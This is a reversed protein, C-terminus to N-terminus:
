KCGAALNNAALVVRDTRLRVCCDTVFRLRKEDFRVFVRSALLVYCVEVATASVGM